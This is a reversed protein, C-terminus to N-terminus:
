AVPRIHIEQYKDDYFALHDTLDRHEDYPEEYSWVADKLTRDGVRLGFYHATGKFPCQTISDSRELRDIRIDARPFYYRPPYDDEDLRIVDTSDAVLQGAVEVQM